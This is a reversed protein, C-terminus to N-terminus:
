SAKKIAVTERWEMGRYSFEGLTTRQCIATFVQIQDHLGPTGTWSCTLTTGM